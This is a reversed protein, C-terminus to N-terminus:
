TALPPTGAAPMTFGEILAFVARPAETGPKLRKRDLLECELTAFFNEAMANDFCHSASVM